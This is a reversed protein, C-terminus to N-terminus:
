GRRAQANKDELSKILGDIGGQRLEQAFTGRYTTVLSVGAVSVDYVKWESGSKFMSYDVGVPEADGSLRVTSKVQVDDAAADLKLPKVDISLNKYNSNYANAYSRVLLRRFEDVLKQRQEATADRWSRGVALRTMREFDFHPAIKTYILEEMKAPNGNKLARDQQVIQIVDQGVSRVLEDPAQEAKATGAALLLAVLLVVRM